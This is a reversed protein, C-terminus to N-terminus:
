ILVTQNLVEQVQQAKPVAALSGRKTTSLASALNAMRTIGEIQSLALDLHGGHKVFGALFAGIFIAGAGTQDLCELQPQVVALDGNQCQVFTQHDAQRVVVIRLGRDLLYAVGAQVTDTQTLLFLEDEDMFALQAMTMFNLTHARFAAPSAWVHERYNPDISVLTGAEQAVQAATRAAQRIPDQTLAMGSVHLVTAEEITDFSLEGIELLTDAGPKRVFQYQPRGVEDLTVFCLTTHAEPDFILSQTEVGTKRIAQELRDGFLDAGVKGILATQAGFAQATVAVVSASGGANEEYLQHGENSFGVATLDVITEGLSVIQAM